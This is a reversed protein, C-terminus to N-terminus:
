WENSDRERERERGRGRRGGERKKQPFRAQCKMSATRLPGEPAMKPTGRTRLTRADSSHTGYIYIYIYIYIYLCCIFTSFLNCIVNYQM